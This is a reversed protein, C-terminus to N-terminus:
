KMIEYIWETLMDCYEPHCEINCGACPVLCGNCVLISADIDHSKEEKTDGVAEKNEGGNNTLRILYTRTGNVVAYERSIIGKELLRGVVRSCKRSDIGMMKWLESQLVEGRENLIALVEHETSM